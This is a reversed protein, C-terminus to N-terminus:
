VTTAISEAARPTRTGAAITEFEAEYKKRTTGCIRDWITTYGGFNYNFYKHHQDHFTATIFWKTAWSKNWWRPLFEYGSHVYLGMFISTPTILAMTAAHIPLTLTTVTLFLPVFGGNILSELPNVSFTTLLNPSTSWHHMKHVWKYMPEKHMARHFWYFWTDFLLFYAVYELGIQWWEAPGKIPAIWGNRALWGSAFGMTPGVIALTIIAVIAETRLVKWKFGKPQVKRAKFFGTSIGAILISALFLVFWLRLSEQGGMFRLLGDWIGM